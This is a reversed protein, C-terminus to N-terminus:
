LNNNNNNVGNSLTVHSNIININKILIINNNM